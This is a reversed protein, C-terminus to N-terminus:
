RCKNHQDWKGKPTSAEETDDHVSTDGATAGTIGGVDSM